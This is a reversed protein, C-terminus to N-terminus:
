HKHTHTYTHANTNTHTYTHTHTLSLAYMSTFINLLTNVLTHTTYTYAFSRM